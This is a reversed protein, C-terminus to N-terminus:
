KNLRYRVLKSPNQATSKVYASAPVKEAVGVADYIGPVARPLEPM